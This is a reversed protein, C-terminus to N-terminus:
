NMQKDTRTANKNKAVDQKLFRDFPKTLLLSEAASQLDKIGLSTMFKGSMSTNESHMTLVSQARAQSDCKRKNKEKGKKDQLFIYAVQLLPKLCEHCGKLPEDIHLRKLRPPPYYCSYIQM